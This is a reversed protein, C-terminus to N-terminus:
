SSSARRESAKNKERLVWSCLEDLCTTQGRLNHCFTNVMNCVINVAAYANSVGHLKVQECIDSALSSYMTERSCDCVSVVDNYVDDTVPTLASMRFVIDDENDGGGNGGDFAQNVICVTYGNVSRANLVEWVMSRLFLQSLKHADTTLIIMPTRDDVTMSTIFFCDRNLKQENMVTVLLSHSAKNADSMYLVFRRPPAASSRPALFTPKGRSGAAADTVFENQVSMIIQRIIDDKMKKVVDGCKQVDRRKDRRSRRRRVCEESM